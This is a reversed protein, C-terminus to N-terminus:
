YTTESSSTAQLVICHFNPMPHSITSPDKQPCSALGHLQQKADSASEQGGEDPQWYKQKSDGKKRLRLTRFPGTQVSQKIAVTSVRRYLHTNDMWALSHFSHEQRIQTATANSFFEHDISPHLPAADSQLM